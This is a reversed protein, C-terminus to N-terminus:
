ENACVTPDILYTVSSTNSVTLTIRTYLEQALITPDSKLTDPYNGVAILNNNNDFIGVERIYFGGVTTPITAEVIINNVNNPDTSLNQISTRYVEHVLATQSASPTVDSGNGDGFAVQTLKLPTGQTLASALLSQGTNTLITYYNGM